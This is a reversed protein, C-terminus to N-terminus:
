SSKARELEFKSYHSGIDEELFKLFGALPVKKEDEDYIYHLHKHNSCSRLVVFRPLTAMKHNGGVKSVLAAVQHSAKDCQGLTDKFVVQQLQGAPM